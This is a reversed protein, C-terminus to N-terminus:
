HHRYINRSQKWRLVSSGLLSRFKTMRVGAEHRSGHMDGSVEVVKEPLTAQAKRMLAGLQLVTDIAQGRVPKLECPGM